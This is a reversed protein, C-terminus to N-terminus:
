FSEEGIVKISVIYEDPIAEGNFLEIHNAGPCGKIGTIAFATVGQAFLVLREDLPIKYFFVGNFLRGERAYKHITHIDIDPKFSCYYKLNLYSRCSEDKPDTFFYDVCVKNVSEPPMSNVIHSLMQPLFEAQKM